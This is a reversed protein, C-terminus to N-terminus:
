KIVYKNIVYPTESILTEKLYFANRHLVTCLALHEPMTQLYLKSCDLRINIYENEVM